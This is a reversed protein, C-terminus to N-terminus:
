ILGGLIEIGKGIQEDSPMSFNLRFGPTVGDTDPLFVSGAVFAVKKDLARRYFAMSDDTNKLTGWLFLGGGPKIIDADLYRACACVMLDRKRHYLARCKAIHLDLNYHAMFEHALVQSFLTTHVDEGQKAVVIKETIPAPAAVYGLRLGPSIIKSFSGVYVVIGETDMSKIAPPPEGDYSLDGYPNDEIIIVGYKACLELVQERRKLTMTIGTPNQFTPVTYLIKINPVTKLASELSEPVIGSGDMDVGKLKLGHSRFTNLAGIFSPTECLVVDGADCLVRAALEIGQQAGSTIVTMDGERGINQTKLRQTVADRLPMYGETLGYQLVFGAMGAFIRASLEGLEESPFADPSPNGAAFSIVDPQQTIKFLERIASPKLGTMPASFRYTM